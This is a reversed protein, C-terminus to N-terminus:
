SGRIVHFCVLDFSLFVVQGKGPINFGLAAALPLSNNGQPLALLFEWGM